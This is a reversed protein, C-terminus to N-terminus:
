GGFSSQYAAVFRTCVGCSSSHLHAAIGSGAPASRRTAGEPEGAARAESEARRLEEGARLEMSMAAAAVSLDAASPDGPALAAARVRRARSITEDPTQGPSLDISVEGGVAYSRGDPGVQFSYSPSGALGGAAAVHAAEHSRVEADRSALSRILAADARDRALEAARAAETALEQASREGSAVSRPDGPLPETPAPRYLMGPAPVAGASGARARGFPSVEVVADPPELSGPGAPLRPEPGAMLPAM